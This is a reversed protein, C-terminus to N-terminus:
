QPFKPLKDENGRAHKQWNFEVGDFIRVGSAEVTITDSFFGDDYTSKVFSEVYYTKGAEFTYSFEMDEAQYISKKRGYYMTCNMVGTITTEGNVPLILYTSNDKLLTMGWTKKVELPVGNIATPTFFGAIVSQNFYVTACQEEPVGADIVLPKQTVCAELVLCLAIGAASMKLYNKKM